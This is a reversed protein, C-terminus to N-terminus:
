RRACGTPTAAPTSSRTPHRRDTSAATPCGAPRCGPGADRAGRPREDERGAAADRSCRSCTSTRTSNSSSAAAPRARDGARARRGALGSRAQDSRRRRIAHDGTSAHRRPRRVASTADPAGIIERYEGAARDLASSSATPSGSSGPSCITWRRSIGTASFGGGCMAAPRELVTPDLIGYHTRAQLYSPRAAPRTARSRDAPRRRPSSRAPSRRAPDRRHGGSCHTACSGAASRAPHSSASATPKWGRSRSCGGTSRSSAITPTRRNASLAIDHEIAWRKTHKAHFRRTCRSASAACCRGGSSDAPSSRSAPASCAHRLRPLRHPLPDRHARPRVPRPRDAGVGPVPAAPDGDLPRLPGPLRPRAQRAARGRPAAAAVFVAPRGTSTSTTSM